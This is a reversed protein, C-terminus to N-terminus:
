GSGVNVPMVKLPTARVFLAVMLMFSPYQGLDSIQVNAAGALPTWSMTVEHVPYAAQPSSIVAMPSLFTVAISSTLVADNTSLTSLVAVTLEVAYSRQRATRVCAYSVM